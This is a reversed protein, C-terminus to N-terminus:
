ERVTEVILALFDAPRELSPLHAVDPWRILRAGPIASAVAAAALAIAQLDLGGVLVTVPVSIRDLYPVPDALVEDSYLDDWGSGLEFLQRQMQAVGARVAPDVPVSRGVGDVWAVLNAEVAEAIDGDALAREEAEFFAQLDPTPTTLLSGGPASLVLSAVLAPKALALGVALGAGFSAGVLHAREIGLGDLTDILDALQDLRGNPRTVSEGFGRLDVRLVDYRQILQPWQRDWMRRDAVGAHLLVITPAAPPGARDYAIGTATFSTM